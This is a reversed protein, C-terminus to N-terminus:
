LANNKIELYPMVRAYVRVRQREGENVGQLTHVAREGAEVGRVKM